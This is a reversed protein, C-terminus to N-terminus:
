TPTPTTLEPHSSPDTLVAQAVDGLRRRTRAHSRMLDFAADVDTGHTRALAGKAQEITIRTNLAGHFQEALVDGSRITREQLM